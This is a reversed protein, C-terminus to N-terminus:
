GGKPMPAPPARFVYYLWILGAVVMPLSLMQGRTVWGWSYGIDRDPLRVFEVSIRALGYGILFVSSQLGPRNPVARRLGYLIAFLVIGELFAEYLQSPHRPLRQPDHPFIVGWSGDTPKGYLEGNIFNGVRGCLLGLPAWTICFDAVATFTLGHRRAYLWFAGLLALLGGHFSMGGKWTELVRLPNELYYAGGYFFVYGLRAGVVLGIVLYLLLNGIEQEAIPSGPWRTSRLAGWYFLLFGIAYTAGYWTGKLPGISFLIPDINHEYVLAFM